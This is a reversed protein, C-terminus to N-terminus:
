RENLERLYFTKAYVEQTPFLVKFLKAEVESTQQFVTTSHRKGGVTYYYATLDKEKSLIGIQKFLTLYRSIENRDIGLADAMSDIRTDEDTRARSLLSSFVRKPTSLMRRAQLYILIPM